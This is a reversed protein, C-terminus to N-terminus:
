IPLTTQNAHNLLMYVNWKYIYGLSASDARTAIRRDLVFGKRLLPGTRMFNANHQTNNLSLKNIFDIIFSYM